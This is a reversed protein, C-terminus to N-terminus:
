RLVFTGFVSVEGGKGEGSLAHPFLCREVITLARKSSGVPAPSLYADLLMPAAASVV